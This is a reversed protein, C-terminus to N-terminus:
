KKKKKINNVTNKLVLTDMHSQLLDLYEKETKFGYKKLIAERRLLNSKKYEKKLTDLMQKTM